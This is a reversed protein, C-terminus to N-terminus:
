GGSKPREGGGIDSLVAFNIENVKGKEGGLPEAMLGHIDRRIATITQYIHLIPRSNGFTPLASGAEIVEGLKGTLPQLM